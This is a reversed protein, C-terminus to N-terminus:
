NVGSDVPLFLPEGFKERGFRAIYGKIERSLLFSM